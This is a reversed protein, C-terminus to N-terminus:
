LGVRVEGNLNSLELHPHILRPKRVGGARAAPIILLAATRLSAGRMVRRPATSPPFPLMTSLDLCALQGGNFTSIGLYLALPDGHIEPPHYDVYDARSKGKHQPFGPPPPNVTTKQHDLSVSSM